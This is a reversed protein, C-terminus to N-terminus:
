EDQNKASTTAIQSSTTSVYYATSTSIQNIASKIETVNKQVEVIGNSLVDLFNTLPSKTTSAEADRIRKENEIQPLSITIWIIFIVVSFLLAALFAIWKKTKEDKKRVKDLYEFM